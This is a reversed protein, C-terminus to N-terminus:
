PTTGGPATSTATSTAPTSSASSTTGAAGTGDASGDEPNSAPATQGTPELPPPEVVTVTRKKEVAKNGALDTVNYKIIYTGAKSTDVSGTKVIKNTIDGDKNDTATAGKDTYADGTKLDVTASGVLTIVPATTDPVVAPTTTATPGAGNSAPSSTATPELPTTTAGGASSEGGDTSSGSSLGGSDTTTSTATNETGTNQTNSNQTNTNTESKTSLEESKGSEASSRFTCGGPVSRIEGGQVFVCVIAGNDFDFMEIGRPASESGVRLANTEISEVVLAGDASISWTGNESLISRANAIDKGGLDIIGKEGFVFASEASEGSVGSLTSGSLNIFVLITGSSLSGDAGSGSSSSGAGFSELAIGVTSGGSAKMGVGSVSSPAIRDGVAIAGGENNVKVPVRGSLAVPVKKEAEYELNGFGGLLVGPKTSVVGVLVSRGSSVSPTSSSTEAGADASIDANSDANSDANTDANADATLAYRKVFVPNENDLMVIEGAELSADKTPYNEALDIATVTSSEAYISGATRASDDCNSAGGNDVCLAGDAIILSGYPINASGLVADTSTGIVTRVNKIGGSGNAQSYVTFLQNSDVQASFAQVTGNAASSSVPLDIWSVFGADTDFSIPGLELNEISTVGAGYDHLFKGGAISFGGAFTSTASTSTATFNRAVVEGVVSLKAYPSSTGIGVFDSATSLTTYGGASTFAGGGGSGACSGDALQFCGGALVIGNAFTSTASGQVDINGSLSLGTAFTSTGTSLNPISFLTTSANNVVNFALGTTASEGWVTLKAYPSSTGVGVDDTVTSLYTLGGASTFAGGSGFDAWSGGTNKFQLTGANDRFGYGSTGSVTTTGFNLYRSAGDLFINGNVTLATLPTSTGIGIQGASNIVFATSSANTVAEFINGTSGGWVTLKSYPTSTGLSVNGLVRSIDNGSQAFLSSASGNVAQEKLSFRYARAYLTISGANVKYYINNGNTPVRNPAAGGSYYLEHLDGINTSTDYAKFVTKANIGDSSIHVDSTGSVVIAGFLAMKGRESATPILASVDQAAYSTSTLGSAISQRAAYWVEEDNQKYALFNSSGDNRVASVLRSYTYGSPLTPATASTSLLSAVTTDNYIVYLYYWTNGAEAGTDLGNVGSATINATVNVSAAQYVKDSSDKLTLYDATLTVKTTDFGATSSAVLNKYAGYATSNGAASLDSWSGASDKFQLTGANDRFGYGSTGATNGFNLYRSTGDIQLNGSVTLAGANQAQIAGWTFSVGHINIVKSNATLIRYKMSTGAPQSSTDISTDGYLKTGDELTTGLQALTTTAWTTGGDRSVAAM